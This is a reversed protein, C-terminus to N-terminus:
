GKSHFLSLIDYWKGNYCYYVVSFLANQTINANELFYGPIRHILPATHLLNTEILM